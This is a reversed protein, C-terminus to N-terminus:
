GQHRKPVPTTHCSPSAGFPSHTIPQRITQTASNNIAASSITVNPKKDVARINTPANKRNIQDTAIALWDTPSCVIVERTMVVSAMMLCSAGRCHGLRAVVDSKTIVGTTRGTPDCVVVIDTGPRLLKAADMLPASEPITALKERALSLLSQVLAM